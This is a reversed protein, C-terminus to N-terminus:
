RCVIVAYNDTSFGEAEKLIDTFNRYTDLVKYIGLANDQTDGCHKIELYDIGLERGLKALPIVEEVDLPTLVMQFGITM